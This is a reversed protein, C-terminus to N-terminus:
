APSAGESLKKTKETADRNISGGDELQNWAMAHGVSGNKWRELRASTPRSTPSMGVSQSITWYTPSLTVM